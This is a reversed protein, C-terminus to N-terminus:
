RPWGNWKSQLRSFYSRKSHKACRDASPGQRVTPLTICGSSIHSTSTGYPVVERTCGRTGDSGSHSWYSRSTQAGLFDLHFCSNQLSVGSSGALEVYKDFIGISFGFVRTRVIVTGALGAQWRSVTLKRLHAATSRDFRYCVLSPAACSERRPRGPNGAARNLM